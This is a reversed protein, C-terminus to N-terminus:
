KVLKTKTEVITTIISNQIYTMKVVFSHKLSYKDKLSSSEATSVVSM